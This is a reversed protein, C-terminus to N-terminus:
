SRGITASNLTSRITARPQASFSLWMVIMSIVDYFRRACYLRLASALPPIWQQARISRSSAMLRGRAFEHREATM